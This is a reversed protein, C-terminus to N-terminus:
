LILELSIDVGVYSFTDLYLRPNRIIKQYQVYAFYDFQEYGAYLTTRRRYPRSLSEAFVRLNLGINKHLRYKLGGGIKFMQGRKEPGLQFRNLVLDQDGSLFYTGFGAYAYPFLPQDMRSRRAYVLALTLASISWVEEYPQEIHHIPILTNGFAYGYWELHCFYRARQRTYELQVGLTRSFSYQLRINTNRNLTVREILKILRPSFFESPNLGANLMVPSYGAGISLVFEKKSAAEFPAALGFLFLVLTATPFLRNVTLDNDGVSCSRDVAKRGSDM